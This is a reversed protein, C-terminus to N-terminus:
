QVGGMPMQPKVFTGAPAYDILEIFFCLSEKGAEEGYAMAWPIYVRYKGGKKMKPVAYTWGKVVGGLNISFPDTTGQMQKMVYSSQVTDGFANTLIYEVKIDDTEAPSGGTGEEITEIIIGNEFKQTNKKKEAAALMKDGAIVNLDKIFQGVMERRESEDILTDTKHIGHKFGAKVMDLNLMKLGDMRVMDKYFGNGSQRGICKSGEKLYTTDFDQYYPGLFKILVDDCESCDEENLNMFFGEILMEKDLKDSMGGSNVISQANLSGLVYGLRDEATELNIVEDAVEEGGGCATLMLAVPAIYFWKNM